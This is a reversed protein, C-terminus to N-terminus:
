YWMAWPSRSDRTCWKKYLRHKAADRMNWKGRRPIRLSVWLWGARATMRDERGAAGRGERARAVVRDRSCREKQGCWKAQLFAVQKLGQVCLAEELRGSVPSEGKYLTLRPIWWHILLSTFNIWNWMPVLDPFIQLCRQTKWIYVDLSFFFRVM